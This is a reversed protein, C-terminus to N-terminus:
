RKMKLIRAPVGGVVAGAPVDKIVVANAGIDVDDGIKVRGIIKAGAGVNVRAGLEPAGLPDTDGKNGITVGQRILCDDGIKAAGHIVICGSHEIAFRRGISATAGITIGFFIESFKSLFLHVIGIPYRILKSKYRFRSYGFRHIQIAWFGLSLLGERATRLDEFFQLKEEM